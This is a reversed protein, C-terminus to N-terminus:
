DCGDPLTDLVHALSAREVLEMIDLAELIYRLDVLDVGYLLLGDTLANKPRYIGCCANLRSALEGYFNDALVLHHTLALLLLNLHFELHDALRLHAMGINNLKLLHQMITM